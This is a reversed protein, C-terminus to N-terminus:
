VQDLRPPNANVLEGVVVGGFPCGFEDGTADNEGKGRTLGYGNYDM